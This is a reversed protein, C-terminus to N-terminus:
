NEAELKNNTQFFSSWRPINTPFDWVELVYPRVGYGAANTDYYTATFM